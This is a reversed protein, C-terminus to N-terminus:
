ESIGKERSMLLCGAADVNDEVSDHFGFGEDADAAVEFAGVMGEIVDEGWSLFSGVLGKPGGEKCGPGPTVFGLEVPSAEEDVSDEDGRERGRRRGRRGGV